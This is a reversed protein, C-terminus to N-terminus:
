AETSIRTPLSAPTTVPSSKSKIKVGQEILEACIRPMGYTADADAHITRSREVLVRRGDCAEIATSRVM